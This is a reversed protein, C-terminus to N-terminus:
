VDSEDDLGNDLADNIAELLAGANRTRRADQIAKKLKMETKAAELKKAYLWRRVNKQLTIVKFLFPDFLLVGSLPHTTRIEGSLVTPRETQTQGTASNYYYRSTSTHQLVVWQDAVEVASKHLSARRQHKRTAKYSIPVTKGAEETANGDSEDEDFDDEELMAKSAQRDHERAAETLQDALEGASIYRNGFCGFM